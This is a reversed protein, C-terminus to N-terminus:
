IVIAPERGGGHMSVGMTAIRKQASESLGIDIVLVRDEDLHLVDTLTQQMLLLEIRSLDCLFVSYQIHDGYGLMLKYVKTCRHPDSVDYCVCYKRRVASM